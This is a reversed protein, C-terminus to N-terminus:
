MKSPGVEIDGFFLEGWPAILCQIKMSTASKSPKIEMNMGHTPLRELEYSEPPRTNGDLSAMREQYRQVFEPDPQPAEPDDTEFDEEPDLPDISFRAIVECGHKTWTISTMRDETVEGIKMERHEIFDM